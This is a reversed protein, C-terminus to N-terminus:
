CHYRLEPLYGHGARSLCLMSACCSSSRQLLVSRKRWPRSIDTRCLKQQLLFVNVDLCGAAALGGGQMFCSCCAVCGKHLQQQLLTGAWCVAARAIRWQMGGALPSAAAPLCAHRNHLQQQLCCRLLQLLLHAAISSTYRSCRSIISLTGGLYASHPWHLAEEAIM